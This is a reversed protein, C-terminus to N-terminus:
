DGGEKGAGSKHKGVEKIDQGREGGTRGEGAKRQRSTERYAQILHISLLFRIICTISFCFLPLSLTTSKLWLLASVLLMISSRDAVNGKNVNLRLLCLFAQQKRFLQMTLGRENLTLLRLWNQMYALIYFFYPPPPWWEHFDTKVTKFHPIPCMIWTKCKFLFM